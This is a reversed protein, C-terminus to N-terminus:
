DALSAAFYHNLWESPCHPLSDTLWVPWQATVTMWPAALRYILWGALCLTMSYAWGKLFLPRSDTLRSTTLYFWAALPCQSLSDTLWHPLSDHICHSLLCDTLWDALSDTLWHPLLAIFWDALPATLCHILWGTPCHPLSNILWYPLLATFWVGLPAAPWPSRSAAFCHSLEGLPVVSEQWGRPCYSM